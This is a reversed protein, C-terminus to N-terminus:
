GGGKEKKRDGNWVHVNHQTNSGLSANALETPNIVLVTVYSIYIYNREINLYYRVLMLLNEWNRYPTVCDVLHKQSFAHKRPTNFWGQHSSSQVPAPRSPASSYIYEYM